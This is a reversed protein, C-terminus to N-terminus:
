EPAKPRIIVEHAKVCEVCLVKWAGLSPGPIYDPALPHGAPAIDYNLEADYFTKRSCVDCLRYDAAAM